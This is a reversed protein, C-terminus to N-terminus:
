RLCCFFLPPCDSAWWAGLAVSAAWRSSAVPKAAAKTSSFLTPVMAYTSCSPSSVVALHFYFSTPLSVATTAWAPFVCSLSTVLNSCSAFALTPLSADFSGAISTIFDSIVWFTCQFRMRHFSKAPNISSLLFSFTLLTTSSITSFISATPSVSKLLEPQFLAGAPGAGMTAGIDSSLFFIFPYPFVLSTCTAIGVLFGSPVTITQDIRFHGSIISASIFYSSFPFSSCTLLAWVYSPLLSASCSLFLTSAAFFSPCFTAIMFLHSALSSLSEWHSVHLWVQLWTAHGMQRLLFRYGPRAIATTCRIAWWAPM